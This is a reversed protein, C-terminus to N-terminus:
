WPLLSKNAVIPALARALFPIANPQFKPLDASSKILSRLRLIELILSRLLWPPFIEFILSRLLKPPFIEFILARILVPPFFQFQQMAELRSFEMNFPSGRLIEKQVFLSEITTQM